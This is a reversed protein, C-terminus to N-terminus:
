AHASESMAHVLDSFFSRPLIIMVPGRARISVAGAVENSASVFADPRMDDGSVNWRLGETHVSAAGVPMLSLRSGTPLELLLGGEPVLACADEPGLLVVNKAPYRALVNFVSLQHDLRGGLFGVGLIMPAEIRQVCKEFDTTNQDDIKHLRDFFAESAKKTLSDMDGIVAEPMHGEALVRAAGGDAAVLKKSFPLATNIDNTGIQGGGVLLVPHKSAVIM